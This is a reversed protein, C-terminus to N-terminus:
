RVEQSRKKMLKAFTNIQFVTKINGAWLAVENKLFHEFRSGASPSLSEDKKGESTKLTANNQEQTSLNPM